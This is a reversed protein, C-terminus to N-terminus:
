SEDLFIRRPPQSELSEMVRKLHGGGSGQGVETGWVNVLEKFVVLIFLPHELIPRHIQGVAVERLVRTGFNLLLRGHAASSLCAELM